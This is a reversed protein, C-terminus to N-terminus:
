FELLRRFLEEFPLRNADAAHNGDVPFLRLDHEIIGRLDLNLLRCVGRRIPRRTTGALLTWSAPRSVKGLLDAL